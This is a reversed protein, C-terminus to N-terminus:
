LAPGYVNQCHRRHELLWTYLDKREFVDVINHGRGPLLELQVDGGAARIAAVMEESNSAPTVDDDTGHFAWVPVRALRKAMGLDKTGAIAVVAAFREPKAGGFRWVGGAGMSYGILYVREPDVPYGALIRQLLADLTKVDTWRAGARVQPAVLIFPFSPDRGVLRPPGYRTLMYPDDGSLSKGHLYLLVPWRTGAAYNEPLFLLYNVPLQAGPREFVLAHLGADLRSGSAPWPADGAVDAMAAKTPLEEVAKM